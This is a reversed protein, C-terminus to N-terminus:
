SGARKAANWIEGSGSALHHAQMGDERGAEIGAELGRDYTTKNMANAKAYSKERLLREYEQQQQEDLSLYAGVCNGLLFRQQENLPADALRRLAEAGLWAAKGPPIRMLASLAVGLWNEGELFQVADLNPLGVYLYRFTLPCHEYFHEEYVDTGIGDLGVKLYLVIPLVPLRYKNRLHIYYGPLRPKISTTREPSEIEIHLLALLRDSLGEETGDVPETTRVQAVLDLQHRSGEPPDPFAETELWEVQSLDFRAAWSAFFLRLFDAFFERILTKFRQDHDM